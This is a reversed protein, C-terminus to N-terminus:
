NQNLIFYETGDFYLEITKYAGTLSVSSNGNINDGAQSTIVIAQTSQFSGDTILILTRDTPFSSNIKVEINGAVANTVGFKIANTPTGATFFETGTDQVVDTVTLSTGQIASDDVELINGTSGAVLFKFGGTAPFTNIGYQRARLQGTNLVEFGNRRQASSTGCGVIFKTNNNFTNFRGVVVQNNGNVILNSGLAMGASGGSQIVNDFGGLIAGNEAVADISNSKGGLIVGSRGNSTNGIGGIVVSYKGVADNIGGEGADADDYTGIAIGYDRARAGTGSGNSRTAITISNEVDQGVSTTNQNANCGIAINDGASSNNQFALRGIIVDRDLQGSTSIGARDGIIVSESIRTMTSQQLANDGIIVSRRLFSINSGNQGIDGGIIVNYFAPDSQSVLVNNGLAINREGQDLSILTQFGIGINDFSEAGGSSVNLNSFAGAGIGVNQRGGVLSGLAGAGIGVNSTGITLNSLSARGVAVNNGSTPTNFLFGQQFDRLAQEGIGVNNQEVSGSDQINLGVNNGIYVSNFTNSQKLTGKIDVVGTGAVTYPTSQSIVSDSLDTGTNWFAISNPTGSGSPSASGGTLLREIQGYADKVFLVNTTADKFVVLTNADTPRINVPNSVTVGM